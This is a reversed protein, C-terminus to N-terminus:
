LFKRVQGGDVVFNAGTIFRALDSALFLVLNAVDSPTAFDKLPVVSEIYGMVKDRDEEIKREWTGGEAL